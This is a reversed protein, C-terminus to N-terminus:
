TILGNPLANGAMGIYISVVTWILLDWSVIVLGFDSIIISSVFTFVWFVNRIHYLVWICHGGADTTKAQSMIILM